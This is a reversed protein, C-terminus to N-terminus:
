RPSLTLADRAVALYTAARLGEGGVAGAFAELAAEARRRYHADGTAVALQLFVRAAWPNAGPLLEDFVPKTRDALAAASPDVTAADFYGGEPDAFDRDLVVALNEAIELYRPRGAVAYAALCAAAVQVQDQLLGHVASGGTTAHRVGLGKAYVRRLLSDLAAVARREALSDGIAGAAELLSGIVYAQRDSFLPRDEAGAADLGRVLARVEYAAADRYRPEATLVWAVALDRALGARVLAPPDDLAADAAVAGSDLMVDLVARAVTLSASDGTRAFEGLLLGVAQTHSFGGLGQKAQVLVALAARVNGIELRLAQPQLVGHAIGSKGLALQRVLAAHQVIFGRQERYSRAIEPLIQKLGRGTVPDDPPFYTGGFFAAGDPTLFVTLPYGHLGALAQVAGQYREAVDPREDRDVRVPVFLSDILAGLSPDAYVERDMETCWRCDEAGVYLLVPRDLRGALAFAERGWPQWSVPQRAARALYRTTSQAMRNTLPGRESVCAIALFSIPLVPWTRM